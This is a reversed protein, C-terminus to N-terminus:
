RQLSKRLTLGCFLTRFWDNNEYQSVSVMRHLAKVDVIIATSTLCSEVHVGLVKLRCVLRSEWSDSLSAAEIRNSM